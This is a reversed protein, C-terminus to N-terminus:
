AGPTGDPVAPRAARRSRRAAVILVGLGLAAGVAVLGAVLFWSPGAPEATVAPQVAPAAAVAAPVSVSARPFPTMAVKLPPAVQATGTTVPGFAFPDEALVIVLDSTGHMVVQARRAGGAPVTIRMVYHGPKGDAAGSARTTAGDRGTLVLRIPSGEVPHDVGADAVTVTVGVLLETGPPTGLAIPADLQAVLGEKALAPVAGAALVITVALVTITALVAPRM